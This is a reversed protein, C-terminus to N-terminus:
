KITVFSLDSVILVFKGKNKYVFVSAMNLLNLERVHGNDFVLLLIIRSYIDYFLLNRLELGM